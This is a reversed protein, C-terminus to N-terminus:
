ELLSFSSSSPLTFSFCAVLKLSCSFHGEEHMRPLMRKMEMDNKSHNCGSMFKLYIQFSFQFEILGFKLDLSDSLATATACGNMMVCVSMCPV